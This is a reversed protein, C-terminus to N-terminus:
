LPTEVHIEKYREFHKRNATYIRDVGHELMTAVIFADFIDQGKIQYKEILDGLKGMAITTPYLVPLTRQYAEIEKLAQSPNLPNAVRKTDTVVAYFETLVTSSVCAAIEGRVAKDRFAKAKPHYPSRKDAAYVLINSDMLYM